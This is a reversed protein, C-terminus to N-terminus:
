KLAMLYKPFAMLIMCCISAIIMTYHQASFNANIGQVIPTNILDITVPLKELQNQTIIGISNIIQDIRSNLGNIVTFQSYCFMGYITMIMARLYINLKDGTFFIAIIMAITGSMYFEFRSIAQDGYSLMIAYLEAESMAQEM